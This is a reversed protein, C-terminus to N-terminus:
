QEGEITLGIKEAEKEYEKLRLNMAMSYFEFRNNKEMARLLLIKNKLSVKLDVKEARM